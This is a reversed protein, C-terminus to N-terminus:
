REKLQLELAAVKVQLEKIAEIAVAALHGYDVGTLGSLDYTSLRSDIAEVEEAILGIERRGSTTSTYAVPRLKNVLSLASELPVVDFKFKSLSSCTALTNYGTLVSTNYCLTNSTSAALTAAGFYGDPNFRWKETLSGSGNRVSFTMGDFYQAKMRFRTAFAGVGRRWDLVGAGNQGESVKIIGFDVHDEDTSRYGAEMEYLRGDGGQVKVMDGVPASANTSTTPDCNKYCDGWKYDIFMNPNSNAGTHGCVGAHSSINVFTNEHPFQSNGSYQQFEIGCGLTSGSAVTSYFNGRVVINNDAGDLKMGYTNATAGDHSVTLQFFSNSCSDGPIGADAGNLGGGTLYLGSGGTSPNVIHFNKFTNYCAYQSIGAAARTTLVFAPTAAQRYISVNEFTSFFMHAAYVAQVNSNGAPDISLNRFIVGSIPGALYILYKQSGPNSGYWRLETAGRRASSEGYGDGEVIVPFNTNSESNSSESGLTWGGLNGGSNLGYCGRPIKIVRTTASSQKAAAYANAFATSDDALSTCSGVAGYAKVNFVQAGKDYINAAGVSDRTVVSNGTFATDVGPLGPGLTKSNAGNWRAFYLDVNSAPGFVDGGGSAGVCGYANGNVDIGRATQGVGCVAPTTGFATTTSSNGVVNGHFTGDKEIYSLVTGGETEYNIMHNSQGANFRRFRAAFLDTLPIAFVAAASMWGNGHGGYPNVNFDTSELAGTSTRLAITSVTSNESGLYGSKLTKSNVGNWQPFFSDPNTAPGFVDGSGGGGSVSQCGTADGSAIIGRPAQGAPCIAPTSALASASAVNADTTAITKTGSNVGVKYVLGVTDYAIQGDVAPTPSASKPLYLASASNFNQAGTSYTNAQDTYVTNAHQRAKALAGSWGATITHIGGSSGVSLTVNTDNAGQITQAANTQSNISTLGTGGAVCNANGNAAIGTAVNGGSCQTPTSNLALAKDVIGDITGDARVGGLSSGGENSWTIINATQGMSRRFNATVVDAESTVGFSTAALARFSAGGNADRRVLWNNTVSSSANTVVTSNLAGTVEGGLTYSADVKSNFSSWDTTSLCGRKTASATPCNITHTSGSSVVAFDNGATGAVITQNFATLGNLSGLYSYLTPSPPSTQVENITRTYPPGAPVAWGVTTTLGQTIAYQVTYTQPYLAVSVLGTTANPKVVISGAMINQTGVTFTPWSITITGTRPHGGADLVNGSVTVLSQAGATISILALLLLRM